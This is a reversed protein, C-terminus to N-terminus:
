NNKKSASLLESKIKEQIPINKHAVLAIYM